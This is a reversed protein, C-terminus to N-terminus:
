AILPFAILATPGGPAAFTIALDGAAAATHTFLIAAPPLAYSVSVDHTTSDQSVAAVLKKVTQAEVPTGNVSLTLTGDASVSAQGVFIGLIAIKVGPAAAHVTASATAGAANAGAGRLQEIFAVGAPGLDRLRNLVFSGAPTVAPLLDDQSPTANVEVDAWGSM